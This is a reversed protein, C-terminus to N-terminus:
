EIREQNATANTTYIVAQESKLRKEVEIWVSPAAAWSDRTAELGHVKALVLMSNVCDEFKGSM